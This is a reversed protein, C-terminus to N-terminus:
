RGHRPGKEQENGQEAAEAAQIMQQVADRHLHWFPETIIQYEERDPLPSRLVAAVFEAPPRYGHEEIYHVVMEPAVFLLDGDPVGFNGIGHAQGCFECTHFGRYAGFYLAEASAGSRAAFEKLRALFEASVEGKSYPYDPHLWGIARVHDGAAVLAERGMDPFFSM